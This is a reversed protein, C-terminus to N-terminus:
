RRAPQTQRAPEGPRRQGAPRRDHLRPSSTAADFDAQADGRDVAIDVRGHDALRDQPPERDREPLAHHTPPVAVAHQEHERGGPAFLRGIDARGIWSSHGLPAPLSVSALSLRTPSRARQATARTPSASYPGECGADRAANTSPEQTRPRGSRAAAELRSDADSRGSTSGKQSEAAGPDEVNGHSAAGSAPTVESCWSRCRRRGGSTAAEVCSSSDSGPATLRSSKLPLGATERWGTGLRVAHDLHSTRCSLSM